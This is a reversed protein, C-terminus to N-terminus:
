VDSGEAEAVWSDWQQRSLPHCVVHGGSDNEQTVYEAGNITFTLELGVERTVDPETVIWSLPAPKFDDVVAGADDLFWAVQEDSPDPQQMVVAMARALAFTPADHRHEVCTDDADLDPYAAQMYRCKM